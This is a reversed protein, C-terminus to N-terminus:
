DEEDGLDYSNDIMSERYKKKSHLMSKSFDPYLRVRGPKGFRCKTFTLDIVGLEKMDPDQTLHGVCAAVQAPVPSYATDETRAFAKGAASTKRQTATIVPMGYIRYGSDLEIGTDWSIALGRMDSAIKGVGSWDGRSDAGNADESMENLYDLVAFDTQFGQQRYELLKARFAGVTSVEPYSVIKASAGTKKYYKLKARIKTYDERELQGRDIRNFDIGTIGSVFDAKVQSLGMENTMFVGKAHRRVGYRFIHSLTKSKGLGTDGGILIFTQRMFGGNLIDKDADVDEGTVPHVGKIGSPFRRFLEPYQKKQKDLSITDEFIDIFDSEEVAIGSDPTSTMKQVAALADAISGEELSGAMDKVLFQLRRGEFLSQLEDVYADVNHLGDEDPQKLREFVSLV